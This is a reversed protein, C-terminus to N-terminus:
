GPAGEMVVRGEANRTVRRVGPVLVILACPLSMVLAAVVLTAPIGFHDALPGAVSYGVPMVILSLFWDFSTVRALVEAPMLQPVTAFWVENLFTLGVFGIATVAMIVATSEPVTISLPILGAPVLALNAVLLPRRPMVRLAFLGGVISGAGVSATILGWASAGGLHDRAVIPGLVFTIALGLNWMAHACLNLLYWRRGVVTRFGEVLEAWFGHERAGGVAAVRMMLLSVASVIFTAGDIVFCWGPSLAAVLVGSLAPGIVATTSRSLGMLAN